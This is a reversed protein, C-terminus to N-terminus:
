TLKKVMPMYLIGYKEICNVSQSIFGNKKYFSISLPSSQVTINTKIIENTIIYNLFHSGMGYGRAEENLYLSVLHNNEIEGFGMVNKNKSLFVYFKTNKEKMRKRIADNSYFQFLTTLGKNSMFHTNEVVLIKTMLQVIKEIHIEEMKLIVNM